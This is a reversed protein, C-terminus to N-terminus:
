VAFASSFAAFTTFDLAPSARITQPDFPATIGDSASVALTVVYAAAAPIM